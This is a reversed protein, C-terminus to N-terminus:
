RSGRRRERSETVTQRKKEPMTAGARTRGPQSRSTARTSGNAEITWTGISTQSPLCVPALRTPTSATWATQATASSARPRTTSARPVRFSTTCPPQAREDESAAQDARLDARLQLVADREREVEGAVNRIENM